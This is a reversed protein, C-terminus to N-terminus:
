ISLHDEIPGGIFGPRLEEVQHLLTKMREVLVTMSMPKGMFDKPVGPLTEHPVGPDVYGSIFLFAAGPQTRHLLDALALGGMEEDLVLDVIMLHFPDDAQRVAQLAESATAATVVTWGVMGVVRAIVERVAADDDVVLIRIYHSATDPPMM